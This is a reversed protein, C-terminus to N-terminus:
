EEVIRFFKKAAPSPDTYTAQGQNFSISGPAEQWAATSLDNKLQVRYTKGPTVPWILTPAGNAIAAQVHFGSGSSLIEYAFLDPQQNFDHLDLNSAWSRFAIRRGGASFSPAGSRSNAAAAGNAGCSLLLTIGTQRDFLFIDPFGNTDGPVINSAASRYVVMRGDPSIEPSDSDGGAPTGAPWSRSVLINTGHAINRLYLQNTGAAISSFALWRGDGSFRMRVQSRSRDAIITRSGTSVNQLITSYVGASNSLWAIHSGDPTIAVKSSVEPISNSFVVSRAQTDWVCIRGLSTGSRWSYVVFRGDPTIDPEGIYFWASGPSNATLAFNTGQQLDRLYLNEGSKTGLTLNAALSRLILYRADHSLCIPSSDSNAWVGNWAPCALSTQGSQLDRVFVDTVANTDGAVLDSAASAFAVFRGNGSIVPNFSPGNAPVGSASVSVLLNTGELLDRLFIDRFGNQGNEVLDEADSAFVLSRGDASVGSSSGFSQGSATSSWLEQVAQSVLEVQGSMRDIVFVQSRQNGSIDPRSSEFAVSRKDESLVPVSFSNLIWSEDEVDLDLLATKENLLDRLFLHSSGTITNTVIDRASSVFSVSRGWPDLRPSHFTSGASIGGELNASALTCGGSSANWVLVCTDSTNTKALFAVSQGDASIDVNQVDDLIFSTILANTHIVDTLGTYLNHRLIASASVTSASSTAQFAVFVGDDSLVHGFCQAETTGSLGLASAAHDSVWTTTASLVNYVMIATTRVNSTRNRAKVAFAIREGDPSIHAFDSGLNAYTAPSLPVDSSVRITLGSQVYRLFIDSVVNTDGPALNSAESTFAVFRGDASMVPNYSPGNGPLGNTAASILLTQNLAINRVFIDSVANTDTGVLNNATSEIVALLGNTAVGAPLSSNNGLETGNFGESVLLTRQLSRDRLYVNLVPEASSRFPLGNTALAIDRATSAFLIYQGDSTMLPAYSDGAAGLARESGPHRM